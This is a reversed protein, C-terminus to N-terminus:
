EKLKSILGSVVRALQDPNLALEAPASRGLQHMWYTPAPLQDSGQGDAWHVDPGFVFYVDWAPLYRPLHLVSAYAKSLQGDSDIFQTARPDAVRASEDRATSEFPGARLVPVWVVYARLRSDPIKEMIQKEV